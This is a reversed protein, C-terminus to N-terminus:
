VTDSNQDATSSFYACQECIARGTTHNFKLRILGTCWEEKFKRRGNQVRDRSLSDEILVEALEAGSKSGSTLESVQEM